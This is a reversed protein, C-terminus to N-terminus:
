QLREQQYKEMLTKRIEEDKIYMINRMKTESVKTLQALDVEVSGSEAEFRVQKVQSLVGIAHGNSASISVVGTIAGVRISAEPQGNTIRALDSELIEAALGPCVIRLGLRISELSRKANSPVLYCVYRSVLIMGSLTVTSGDDNPVIDRVDRITM